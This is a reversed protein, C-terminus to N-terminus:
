ATLGARGGSKVVAVLLCTDDHLDDAAHARAGAVIHEKLASASGGAEGMLRALGEVGLFEHRNRGAESLGDTYIALADGEALTIVAETYDAETFAGLVPGTAPLEEIVRTQARRLLAPEHGCSAYTLTLAGADYVGVFLTAFGNLLDHEALTRNLDALAVAVTRGNYLVFRLMNRVLSVQSAAALGKGSLDGVVLAVCGKEVNFVDFFDGGVNAESLAAQYHDDLDLGPVGEPLRPRLANQLREAITHDRRMLRATNLTSHTQAAVAEVLAVEDPRWDRPGGAASLSLAAVLRQNEDYLPVFIAARVGLVAYAEAAEATAPHERLDPIVLTTKNAYATELNLGFDALRYDGALPALPPRRWDEGVSARDHALDFEALYCRDADLARGLEEVAVRQVADPDLSGRQAQAIRNAIRENRLLREREAEAQKRATIDLFTAVVGVRNGATDFIPSAGYQVPFSTGDKRWLVEDEVLGGSGGRLARYVPCEEEPYPTGDARHHHILAHVNQGVIEDSQYGLLAAGSRNIFTCLGNQDLGFLGETTSELLLRVHNALRTQEQEARRQETVDTHIGVWERITAGGTELVPIARITCTRWAGDHRRVRHEFNFVARAKVAKEWADITPRADEPHVADSWGYGQYQAATQGTFAAWGPQEGGMKGEPDNTWIIQTTQEVLTRFREESKKLAEEAWRRELGLAIDAAVPALTELTASSLPHRAFLAIVGLLRNEVVLPYGAFAVMNERKAWEQDGVRPDGIVHNTLHAKREQAIQGIKFQGVPVRGHPGDVHTYLGASARLILVNEAEDLTWIRAFAADLHTVLAQACKQLVDPLPDNQVLANSVDARLSGLQARETREEEGRRRETVDEFVTYVQYPQSEGPRFQPVATVNLWRFTEDLPHFVGMVVNQVVRGTQLARVSPHTDGPFDSGDEHVARWRPDLSDRGQMQEMSLGLLREAAPNAALIRSNEDQYTVGLPVTEFLTQHRAQSERRAEEARRRETLDTLLSLAGILNGAEDRVGASQALVSVRSGDPRAFFYETEVVGTEGALARALTRNQTPVAEGSRADRVDSLAWFDPGMATVPRGWLRETERNAYTLTGNADTTLVGLPVTDFLTQLRARAEEAARRAAESAALSRRTQDAARRAGEIALLVLGGVIILALAELADSAHTLRFNGRPEMLFFRAAGLSLGLTLAGPAWGGLATVLAIVLVFGTSFPPVREGPPDALLTQQMQLLVWTAVAVLAPSILYPVAQSFRLRAAVGEAPRSARPPSSNPAATM